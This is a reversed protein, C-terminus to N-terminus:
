QKGYSQEELEIERAVQTLDCPGCCYSACCDGVGGGAIKYRGRVEGRNLCQLICGVGLSMLLCHAWCAGSNCSGGDPDPSGHEALHRLRQKNQGHVICPCFWAYCCTGCAEFCGFLGNSWEREGSGDVPKGKVNLNGGVQMGMTAM